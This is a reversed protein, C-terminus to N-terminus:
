NDSHLAVGLEDCCVWLDTGLVVHRLLAERSEVAQPCILAYLEGDEFAVLVSKM